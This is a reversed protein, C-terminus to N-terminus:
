VCGGGSSVLILQQLVTKKEVRTGKGVEGPKSSPEHERHNCYPPGLTLSSRMADKGTIKGSVAKFTQDTPPSKSTAGSWNESYQM